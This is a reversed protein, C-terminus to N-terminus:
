HCLMVERGDIKMVAKLFEDFTRNCCKVMMKAESFSDLNHADSSSFLTRGKMQGAYRELKSPMYIECSIFPEPPIFGLQYIISMAKDVHAYVAIGGYEEILAVCEELTLSCPLSLPKLWMETFEDAENVLLQYGDIEPDSEHKPLKSEIIEGLECAKQVSPFYGLLHIDEVTQIEIGPLFSVGNKNFIEEFVALNRTSNHDTIAAWDIHNEVLKQAVQNPTMTLDACPSLCSHIHFDARFCQM